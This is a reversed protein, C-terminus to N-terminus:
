HTGTLGGRVPCDDTLTVGDETDRQPQTLEGSVSRVEVVM